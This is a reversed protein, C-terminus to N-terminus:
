KNKIRFKKGHNWIIYRWVLKIGNLKGCTKCRGKCCSNIHSSDCNYYDGGDKASYFIRKTTLCIVSKARPSDKGRRGYMPNRKGSNQEKLKKKFESTKCLEIRSKSMKEKSEKSHKKGYMPNDEGKLPPRNNKIKENIEKIEEDSKYDRFRYGSTGEGGWTMNCLHCGKEKSYNNKIDISFGYEFVLENILWCEIDNAQNETLDCRIIECAVSHKEIIRLFHKNRKDKGLERWRDGHGKGIYFPENTDLRYYIYVYYDNM